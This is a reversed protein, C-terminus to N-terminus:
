RASKQLTWSVKCDFVLEARYVQEADTTRDPEADVMYSTQTLEFTEANQIILSQQMDYQNFEVTVDNAIQELTALGKAFVYFTLDGETYYCTGGNAGAGGGFHWEYKTNYKIVTLPLPTNEPAQGMWVTMNQYDTQVTKQFRAVIGALLTTPTAM